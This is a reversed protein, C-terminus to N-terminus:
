SVALYLLSSSRQEEVFGLASLCLGHCVIMFMSVLSSVSRARFISAGSSTMHPKELMFPHALLVGRILYQDHPVLKM